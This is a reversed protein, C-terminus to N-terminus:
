LEKLGEARIIGLVDLAANAEVVQAKLEAWCRFEQESEALAKLYEAADIKNPPDEGLAKCIVALCRTMGKHHGAVREAKDRGFGLYYGYLAESFGYVDGALAAPLVTEHRPPYGPPDVLYVIRVLDEAAEAATDHVRFSTSYWTNTGDANPRSDRHEFTKGTWSKTATIAGWTPHLEADGYKARLQEWVHSRWGKGYNSELLAVAQALQAVSRPPEQGFLKRYGECILTRAERHTVNSV